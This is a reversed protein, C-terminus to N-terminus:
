FRYKPEETAPRLKTEAQRHKKTVKESAEERGGGGAEEGDMLRRVMMGQSRVLSVNPMDCSAARMECGGERGGKDLDWSRVDAERRGLVECLCSRDCLDYHGGLREKLSGSALTNRKWDTDLWLDEEGVFSSTRKRQKRCGRDFVIMSWCM